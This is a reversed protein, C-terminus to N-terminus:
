EFGFPSLEFQGGGSAEVVPRERREVAPRESPGEPESASWEVALLERGALRVSLRM